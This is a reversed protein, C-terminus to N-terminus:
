LRGGIGRGHTNEGRGEVLAPLLAAGPGAPRAREADGDERGGEGGAVVVGRTAEHGVGDLAELRLAHGHLDDVRGQGALTPDDRLQTPAGPEGREEEGARHQSQAPGVALEDVRVPEERAENCREGALREDQGEVAGTGGAPEAVELEGLPARPEDARDDAPRPEDDGDGLGEGRGGAATAGALNADNGVADHQGSLRGSLDLGGLDQERAAQARLLADLLEHLGATPEIQHDGAVPGKPVQHGLRQAEQGRGLQGVAVAAGGDDDAGRPALAEAITQASAIAWPLGTTAVATPPRCSSTLWARVPKRTSGPLGAARRTAIM